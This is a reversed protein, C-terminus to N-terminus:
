AHRRRSGPTGRRVRRLKALAGLGLGLLAGAGPEPILATTGSEVVQFSPDFVEFTQAGARGSAALIAIIQFGDVLSAADGTAIGEYRGASPLGDDPQLVLTGWEAGVPPAPTEIAKFLVPDFLISFREGTAFSRESVFYTYRVRDGSGDDPLDDLAYLIATAGAEIPLLLPLLALICHSGTHLRERLHQWM